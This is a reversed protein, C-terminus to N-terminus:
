QVMYEHRIEVYQQECYYSEDPLALGDQHIKVQYSNSDHDDTWVYALLMSTGSDPAAMERVIQELDVASTIEELLGDLPRPGAAEVAEDDMFMLYLPAVLVNHRAM